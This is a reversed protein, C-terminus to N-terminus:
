TAIRYTITFVLGFLCFLILADWAGFMPQYLVMSFCLCLKFGLQMKHYLDTLSVLLTASLPFREKYEIDFLRYYLGIGPRRPSAYKAASNDRIKGHMIAQSVSYFATASVFLILSVIM